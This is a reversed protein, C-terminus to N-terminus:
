GEARFRRLVGETVGDAPRPVPTSDRLSRLGSLTQRLTALMRHCQPCLGAHEDVRHRDPEDLERDLYESLHRATWRHERMFRLNSLVRGIM